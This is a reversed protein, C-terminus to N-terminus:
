RGTPPETPEPDLPEPEKPEPERPEESDAKKRSNKRIQYVKEQLDNNMVTVDAMDFDRSHELSYPIDDDEDDDVADFVMERRIAQLMKGASFMQEIQLHPPLYGDRQVYDLSPPIKIVEQTRSPRITCNYASRYCVGGTKACGMPIQRRYDDVNLPIRSLVVM